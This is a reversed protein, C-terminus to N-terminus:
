QWTFFDPKSKLMEFIIMIRGDAAARAMILPVLELRFRDPAPNAELLDAIGDNWRRLGKEIALDLPLKGDKNEMQVAPLYKNVIYRLGEETADDDPSLTAAIHLPFNGHQDSVGFQDKFRKMARELLAYPFDSASARLCAHLIPQEWDTTSSIPDLIIALLHVCKWLEDVERGLNGDVHIEGVVESHRYKSREEKMIIKQCLLDIPRLLSYDPRQTSPPFAKVLLRIIDAPCDSTIATHLPTQGSADDVAAVLEPGLEDLITEIVTQPVNKCSCVVHLITSETSVFENPPNETERLVSKESEHLNKVKSILEIWQEECALAFIPDCARPTEM